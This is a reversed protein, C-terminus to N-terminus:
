TIENFFEERSTITNEGLYKHVNMPKLVLDHVKSEMVEFKDGLEIYIDGYTGDFHDVKSVITSGQKIM